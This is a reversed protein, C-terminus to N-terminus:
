WNFHAPASKKVPVKGQNEVFRQDYDAEELQASEFLFYAESMEALFDRMQDNSVQEVRM